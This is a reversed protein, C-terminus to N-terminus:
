QEEKNACFDIVKVTYCGVGGAALDKLHEVGYGTSCVKGGCGVNVAAKCGDPAIAFFGVPLNPLRKVSGDNGILHKEKNDGPRSHGIMLVGPRIPYFTASSYGTKPIPIAETRGDKSLWWIAPMVSTNNYTEILLYQNRWPAHLVSGWKKRLIPLDVPNGKSPKYRVPWELKANDPFWGAELQGWGAKLPFTGPYDRRSGCPYPALMSNSNFDGPTAGPIEKEKGLAGRVAVYGNTGKKVFFAQGDEYCFNHADRRILTFTNKKTDWIYLGVKMGKERGKEFEEEPLREASEADYTGVEYGKFIVQDNDLWWFTPEQAVPFGSDVVPFSMQPYDPISEPPNLQPQAALAQASLILLLNCFPKLRKATAGNM